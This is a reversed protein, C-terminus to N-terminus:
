NKKTEVMKAQKLISDPIKIGLLQMNQKNIEIQLNKVTEIPIESPKKGKLLIEAAIEGSRYGINYDTTGQSILGGANSFVNNTALVPIKSKNFVDLIAAFYSAVTNDQIAYYIDIDKAILNAAAVMETGNTVAKEVVTFGYQGALKKLNNVESVSNQESSNYIIGIKKAGPLLERM